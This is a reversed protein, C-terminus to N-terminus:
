HHSASPRRLGSSELKGIAQARNLVDMKRYIRQLHNKVTFASINLISGIEDNTKGLRVWELIELERASLEFAKGPKPPRVAHDDDLAVIRRCAFDIQPLLMAFMRRERDGYVPDPHLLVYLADQGTRGDRLGHVMMSGHGAMMPALPCDCKSTVLGTIEGSFSMLQFSNKKWRSYLEQALSRIGCADCQRARVKPLPSIIDLAVDGTAFDGVMAMFVEHPLVRQLEGQLWLFLQFHRDIVLSEQVIRLFRERDTASLDNIAPM